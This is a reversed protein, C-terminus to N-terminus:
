SAGGFGRPPTTRLAHIRDREELFLAAWRPENARLDDLLRSAEALADTSLAGATLLQMRADVYTLTGAIAAATEPYDSRYGIPGALITYAALETECSARVRDLTEALRVLLREWRKQEVIDFGIIEGM